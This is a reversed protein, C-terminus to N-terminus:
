EKFWEKKYEIMEKKTEVKIKYVGSTLSSIDISFYGFQNSQPNNIKLKENGKVDVFYINMVDKLSAANMNYFKKKDTTMNGSTSTYNQQSSVAITKQNQINNKLTTNAPANKQVEVNSASAAKWNLKNNEAVMVKNAVPATNNDGMLKKDIIKEEALPNNQIGTIKTLNNVEPVSSISANKLPESKESPYTFYVIAAGTLIIIGATVALFLKSGLLNGLLSSSDSSKNLVGSKVNEWIYQPPQKEFNNTREVILDLVDKNIPENM